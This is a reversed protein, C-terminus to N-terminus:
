RDCLIKIYSGYTVDTKGKVAKFNYKYGDPRCADYRTRIKDVM